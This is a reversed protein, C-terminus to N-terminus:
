VEINLDCFMKNFYDLKDYQCCYLWLICYPGCYDRDISQIQKTYYMESRLIQPPELGYSDFYIDNHVAVWHGIGDDRRLIIIFSGQDPLPQNIELLDYIHDIKINLIDALEKLNDDSTIPKILDM